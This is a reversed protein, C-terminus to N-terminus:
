KQFDAGWIQKEVKKLKTLQLAWSSSMLLIKVVKAYFFLNSILFIIQFPFKQPYVLKLFLSMKLSDFYLWGEPKQSQKISYTRAWWNWYDNKSLVLKLM